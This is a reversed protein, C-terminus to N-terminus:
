NKDLRSQEVTQLAGALLKLTEEGILLDNLILL